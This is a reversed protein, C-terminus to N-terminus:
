KKMEKIVGLARTYKDSLNQEQGILEHLEIGLVVVSEQLLKKRQIERSSLLSIIRNATKSVTQQQEYTAYLVRSEELSIRNTIKDEKAVTWIINNFKRQIIGNPAIGLIDFRINPFFTEELSDQIFAHIMQERVKEHYPILEQLFKQNEIIEEEINTIIKETQVRENYNSRWENIFLAFLVSFVIMGSEAFIKFQKSKKKAIPKEETIQEEKIPLEEENTQEENNM